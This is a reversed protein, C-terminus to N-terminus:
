ILKHCIRAFIFVKWRNLPINDNCFTMNHWSFYISFSKDCILQRAAVKTDQEITDSIYTCNILLSKNKAQVADYTRLKRYTHIYSCPTASLQSHHSWTHTHTLQSFPTVSQDSWSVFYSRFNSTVTLDIWSWFTNELSEPKIAIKESFAAIQIMRLARFWACVVVFVSFLNEDSTLAVTFRSALPKQPLVVGMGSIYLKYYSEFHM